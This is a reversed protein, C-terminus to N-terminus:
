ADGDGADGWYDDDGRGGAALGWILFALVALGLIATGLDGQVVGTIVLAAGGAFLLGLVIM